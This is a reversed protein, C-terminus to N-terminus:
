QNDFNPTCHCMVLGDSYRTALGLDSLLSELGQMNPTLDRDRDLGTYGSKALLDSDNSRGGFCISWTEFLRDLCVPLDVLGENKNLVSLTLAHLTDPQLEFHKAAVRSARPQALGNRILIERYFEEVKPKGDKNESIWNWQTECESFDGNAAMNKFSEALEERFRSYSWRSQERMKKSEGNSMDTLLILPDQLEICSKKRIYAILWCSLIIIIFRLKIEISMPDVNQCLRLVARTESQMLNSITVKRNSSLEGLKASARDELNEERVEQNILPNLLLRGTSFNQNLWARVFELVKKGDLSSDLIAKVFQGSFGDNDKMRSILDHSSISYDSGFGGKSGFIAFVADDNDSVAELHKRIKHLDSESLSTSISNQESLHEKLKDLKYNGEPENKSSSAVTYNLTKQPYNLGTLSLLFGSAFHVPKVRRDTNFGFAAGYLPSLNPQPAPM